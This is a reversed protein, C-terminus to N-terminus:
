NTLTRARKVNIYPLETQQGDNSALKWTLLVGAMFSPHKSHRHDRLAASPFYEPTGSLKWIKVQVPRMPTSRLPQNMMVSTLISIAMISQILYGTRIGSTKDFSMGYGNQYSVIALALNRPQPNSDAARM